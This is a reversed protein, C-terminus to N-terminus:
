AVKWIGYNLGTATKPSGPLLSKSRATDCALLMAFLDSCELM